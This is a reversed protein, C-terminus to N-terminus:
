NSFLSPAFQSSLESRRERLLEAQEPYESPDPVKMWAEKYKGEAELDDVKKMLTDYKKQAESREDKEEKVVKVSKAIKDKEIKSNKIAIEQQKMYAEMNVFLESTVKIPESITSFFGEDLDEPTGKLVVPPILLRANDGCGENNLLLSVILTNEKTQKISINYSGQAGIAALQKFFNTEM